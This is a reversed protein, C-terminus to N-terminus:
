ERKDYVGSHLLTWDSPFHIVHTRVRIRGNASSLAERWTGPGTPQVNGVSSEASPSEGALFGGFYHYVLDRPGKIEMFNASISIQIYRFTGDTEKRAWTQIDNRAFELAELMSLRVVAMTENAGPHTECTVSRQWPGFAKPYLAFGITNRSISYSANVPSTHGGLLRGLMLESQQSPQSQGIAASVSSASPLMPHRKDATVTVQSSGAVRGKDTTQGATNPPYGKHFALKTCQGGGGNHPLATKSPLNAWPNVAPAPAPIYPEQPAGLPYLAQLERLLPAPAIKPPNGRTNKKGRQPM